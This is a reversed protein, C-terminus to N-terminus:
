SHAHSFTDYYLNVSQVRPTKSIERLGVGVDTCPSPIKAIPPQAIVAPISSAQSQPITPKDQKGPNPSLKQYIIIVYKNDEWNGCVQCWLQSSSRSHRQTIEKHVFSGIDNDRIGLNLKTAQLMRLQMLPKTTFDM